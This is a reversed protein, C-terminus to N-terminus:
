FCTKVKSECDFDFILQDPFQNVTPNNILFTQAM